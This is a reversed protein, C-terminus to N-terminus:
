CLTSSVTIETGFLSYVAGKSSDPEDGSTCAINVNTNTSDAICYQDVSGTSLYYIYKQATNSYYYAFGNSGVEKFTYEGNINFVGNLGSDINICLSDPTYRKACLVKSGEFCIQGDGYESKAIATYDAACDTADADCTPSSGTWYADSWIDDKTCYVKVGSACKRSDDTFPEASSFQYYPHSSPCDSPSAECAPATGIWKGDREAYSVGYYWWDCVANECYMKHGTWCAFFGSDYVPYIPVMGFECGGSCFPESGDVFGAADYNNVECNYYTQSASVKSAFAFAFLLAVLLAAM